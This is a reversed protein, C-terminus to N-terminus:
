IKVEIVTLDSATSLLAHLDLNAIFILQHGVILKCVIDMFSDFVVGRICSIGFMKPSKFM